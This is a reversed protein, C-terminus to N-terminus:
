ASSDGAARINALLLGHAKELEGRLQSSALAKWQLMFSMAKHPLSVVNRLLINNFVWDNRVRWIAWAGAVFCCWLVRM